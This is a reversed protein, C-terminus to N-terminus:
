TMIAQEIWAGGLLEEGQYFVAAQGPTVATQPRDFSVHLNEKQQELRCPVGPHASRIKVSAQRDATKGFEGNMWHAGKAVLGMAQLEEKGGLVVRNQAADLKTVYRREGTAVGLGRRQGITYNHLGLHRGLIKGDEDIFDGPPLAQDPFYSELFEGHNERGIFCLDTSETKESVALGAKRAIERVEEKTYEGVPFLLRSLETQSLRWLFYSQDKKLDKGKWLSAKGNEGQRVRAYHGTAIWFVGKRDALDLLAKFRVEKNCPACPLPTRGRAYEKVFYEIVEKQFEPKLDIVAFPIGLRECVQRADLRDKPTCCGEALPRDCTYLEMSVGHVEFGQSKLLHAAVSSDVGGSM